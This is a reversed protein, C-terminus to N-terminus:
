RKHSVEGLLGRGRLSVRESGKNGCACPQQHAACERRLTMAPAHVEVIRIEDVVHPAYETQDIEVILIMEDVPLGLRKMERLQFLKEGVMPNSQAVGTAFHHAGGAIGRVLLEIDAPLYIQRGNHGLHRLASGHGGGALLCCAHYSRHGVSFNRGDSFKAVACDHIRKAIFTLQTM